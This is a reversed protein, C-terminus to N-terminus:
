NHKKRKMENRKEGKKKTTTATNFSCSVQMKFM